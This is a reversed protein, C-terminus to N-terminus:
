VVQDTLPRSEPGRHVGGVHQLGREHAAVDPHDAGRRSTLVVFPDPAVRRQLSAKLGHRHLLQVLHLRPLHEHGPSWPEFPMVRHRDAVVRQLGGDDEGVAEDGLAGTGVLGDVHEVLRARVGLRGRM